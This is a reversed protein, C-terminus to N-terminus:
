GVGKLADVLIAVAGRICASAPPYTNDALIILALSIVVAMIVNQKIELRALRECITILSPEEKCRNKNM